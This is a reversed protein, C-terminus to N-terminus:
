LVTAGMRCMRTLEGFVSLKRAVDYAPRAGPPLAFKNQVLLGAVAADEAPEGRCERGFGFHGDAGAEV